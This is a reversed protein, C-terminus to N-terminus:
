APPPPPAAAAAPSLTVTWDYLAVARGESDAYLDGAPGAFPVLYVLQRQRGQVSGDPMHQWLSVVEIDGTGTEIMKVKGQSERKVRVLESVIFSDREERKGEAGKRNVVSGQLPATGVVSLDPAIEKVIITFQDGGNRVTVSNAKEYVGRQTLIPMWGVRRKRPGKATEIQVEKSFANYVNLINSEVDEVAGGKSGKLWRLRVQTTTGEAEGPSRVSGALLQKFEAFSKGLPLTRGQFTFSADWDGVLWAPGEVSPPGLPGAPGLTRIKGNNFRSALVDLASDEAHAIAPAGFRAALADLNGQLVTDKGQAMAPNAFATAAAPLSLLSFAQRIATRRDLHSPAPTAEASCASESCLYQPKINHSNFPNECAELNQQLSTMRRASDSKVGHFWLRPQKGLHSAHQSLLTPRPYFFAGVGHSSLCYSFVQTGELLVILFLLNLNM